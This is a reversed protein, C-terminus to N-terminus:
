GKDVEDDQVHANQQTSSLSAWVPFLVGLIKTEWFVPIMVETKPAVEGGLDVAKQGM